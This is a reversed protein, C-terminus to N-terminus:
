VTVQSGVFALLRKGKKEDNVVKLRHCFRYIGKDERECFKYISCYYESYHNKDSNLKELIEHVDCAM